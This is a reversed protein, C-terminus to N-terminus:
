NLNYPLNYIKLLYALLLEEDRESLIYDSEEKSLTPISFNEMISKQYNYYEGNLVNSTHKIYYQMLESNLIKQLLELSIENNKYLAFGNSFLSFKNKDLIFSPVKSYIKYVLKESINFLGQSRGYKYWDKKNQNFVMKLYSYCIPYEKLEDEKILHTTTYPCIIKYDKINSVKYYDRLIAPEIYYRKNKYTKYYGLEDRDKVIFVKNNSTQIGINIYPKLKLPYSEIKKINALTEVSSLVWKIPTLYEKSIEEFQLDILNLDDSESLKLYKLFSSTEKKLTIICTYISANPFVFNSTFDLISEVNWKLYKRLEQAAKLVLFNNPIIFRAEGKPKLYTLSLELFIYYINSAGNQITKYDTTGEGVKHWKIYPPNGIIYDFGEVNFLESWNTEISNAQKINFKIEATYGYSLALLSLVIKTHKINESSIDIGYINTEIIEKISRNTERHIKLIAQVLFIGGGCSPDLIKLDEKDSIKSLMYNVIKIPTFIVGNKKRQINDLLLELETIVDNITFEKYIENLRTITTKSIFDTYEKLESPLTIYEINNKKIYYNIISGIEQM